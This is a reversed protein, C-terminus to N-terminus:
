SKLVKVTVLSNFNDLEYQILQLKHKELCHNMEASNDFKHTCLQESYDRMVKKIGALDTTTNM